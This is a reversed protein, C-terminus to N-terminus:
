LQVIDSKIGEKFLPVYSLSDCNELIALNDESFGVHVTGTDPYTLVEAVDTFPGSAM